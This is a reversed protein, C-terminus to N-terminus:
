CNLILASLALQNTLQCTNDCVEEEEILLRIMEYPPPPPYTDRPLETGRPYIDNCTDLEFRRGFVLKCGVGLLLYFDIIDRM